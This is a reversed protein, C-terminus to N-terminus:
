HFIQESLTIIHVRQVKFFLVSCFMSYM